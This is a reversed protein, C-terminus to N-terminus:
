QELDKDIFKSLDALSKHQETTLGSGEIREQDAWARFDDEDTTKTLDYSFGCACRMYITTKNRTLNVVNQWM